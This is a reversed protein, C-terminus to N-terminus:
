YLTASREVGGNEWRLTSGDLRLSDRTIGDGSDLMRRGLGDLAWVVTGLSNQMADYATAIWAFSANEKLELDTFVGYYPNGGSYPLIGTQVFAGTRLDKVQISGTCPGAATCAAVWATFPGALRPLDVQQDDYAQGLPFRRNTDFLCGFVYPMFGQSTLRYQMLLRGTPSTLLTTAPQSRCGAFLPEGDKFLAVRTAGTACHGPRRRNEPRTPSTTLRYVLWAASRSLFRGRVRFRLEARKRSLGFGGDRAIRPGPLRRGALRVVGSVYGDRDRECPVSFRVYSGHSLRRGGRSTRLAAALEFFGSNPNARNMDSPRGAFGYYDAAKLPRAASAPSAAALLAVSGLLLLTRASAPVNSRGPGTRPPWSRRRASRVSWVAETGVDEM